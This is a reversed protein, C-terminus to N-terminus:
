WRMGILDFIGARYNLGFKITQVDAKAAFTTGFFDNITGYDAYLYEVKASWRPAFAYELGVGATWGLYFHDRTGITFSEAQMWALGGTGYFMLSDIAYGLRGRVTGTADIDVFTGGVTDRLRGWSSDAEIGVVWNNSFQWNYGSQIGFLGGSPELSNTGLGGAVTEFNGWGYGAHVGIYPGTWTAVRVPAKTPMNYAAPGRWNAFRYNLGLRVTSLTLDTNLVVGLNSNTDGLDAYLYEIKASWNPAFAYEIGAGITYGIQPRDITFVGTPSSVETTAWALGGTVYLLVPGQAYGLRTRATGFANVSSSLPTAVVGSDDVGAFSVDIEYGLVWNRNLLYNYGLQIGGFGGSPSVSGLTGAINLDNTGWAYGAHVGIYQGEWSWAAPAKTYVPGRVPVDAAIAASSFAAAAIGGLLLHRINM